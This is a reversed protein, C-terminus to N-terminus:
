ETFAMEILELATRDELNELKEVAVIDHLAGAQTLDNNLKDLYAAADPEDGVQVFLIGFESRDKIRKTIDVIVQALGVKDDPVGDTFVVLCAPKAAAGDAKRKALMIDAAKEVAEKTNTGGMARYELFMTELTESTTADNIKVKGAFRGILIGDKDYTEMERCLATANEQVAKLRTLGNKLVKSMSGSTDILLGMDVNSYKSDAM